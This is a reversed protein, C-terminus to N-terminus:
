ACEKPLTMGRPAFHLLHGHLECTQRPAPDHVLCRSCARHHALRWRKQPAAVPSGHPPGSADCDVSPRELRRPTEPPPGEARALPAGEFTAPMLDRGPEQKLPM